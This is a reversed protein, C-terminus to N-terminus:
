QLTFVVFGTSCGTPTDVPWPEPDEEVRLINGPFGFFFAWMSVTDCYGVIENYIQYYRAKEKFLFTSDISNYSWSFESIVFNELRAATSSIPFYHSNQSCKLRLFLYRELLWMCLYMVIVIFIPITCIHRLYQPIRGTISQWSSNVVSMYLQKWNEHLYFGLEELM